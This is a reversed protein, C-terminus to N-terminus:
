KSHYFSQLTSGGTVHPKIKCEINTRIASHKLWWGEFWLPGWGGMIEKRWEGEGGMEYIEMVTSLSQGAHPFKKGSSMRDWLCQWRHKVTIDWLLCMVDMWGCKCQRDTDDLTKMWPRTTLKHMHESKQTSRDSLGSVPVLRKSLREHWCWFELVILLWLYLCLCVADTQPKWM